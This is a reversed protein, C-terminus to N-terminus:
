SYLKEHWRSFKWWRHSGDFAYVAASDFVNEESEDETDSITLCTQRIM